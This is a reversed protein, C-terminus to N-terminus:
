IMERNLVTWHNEIESFLFDFTKLRVWLVKHVAVHNITMQKRGQLLLIGRDKEHRRMSLFFYKSVGEGYFDVNRQALFDYVICLCRLVYAMCSWLMEDLRTKEDPRAGICEIGCGLFSFIEISPKNTLDLCCVNFNPLDVGTSRVAPYCNM